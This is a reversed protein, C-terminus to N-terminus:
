LIFGRAQRPFILLVEGGFICVYCLLTKHNHLQYYTNGDRPVQQINPNDMDRWIVKVVLGKLLTFVESYIGIQGVCKQMVICM